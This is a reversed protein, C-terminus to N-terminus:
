QTNKKNMLSKRHKEMDMNQIYDVENSDIVKLADNQSLITDYLYLYSTMTEHISLAEREDTKYVINYNANISIKRNESEAGINNKFFVTQDPFLIIDFFSQNANYKQLIKPCYNSIPVFGSDVKLLETSPYTNIDINFLEAIAEDTEELLKYVEKIESGHAIVGHNQLFFASPKSKEEQLSKAILYSLGFGPSVYPISVFPFSLKDKLRVFYESAKQNCNILNTWVSHTHVVYKDLVAHFGTEMSPKPFLKGNDDNLIANTIVELSEKESQERNTTKVQHFYDSISKANVASIGNDYTMESFLFGSAKILMTGNDSKVSTNGGPGQILDHRNKYPKTLILLEEITSKYM